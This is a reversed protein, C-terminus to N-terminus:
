PAEREDGSPDLTQAVAERSRRPLLIMALIFASLLGCIANPVMIPWEGLLAGYSTWLAFGVVTLTYMPASLSRTDRTRIVKWAQPTFSTVSCVAACAGVAIAATELM